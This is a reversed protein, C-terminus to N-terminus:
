KKSLQYGAPIDFSANDVTATSFDDYVVRMRTAMKRALEVMRGNGEYRTQVDLGCLVGKSALQRITEGIARAQDPPIQATSPLGLLYNADDAAKRLAAMERQEPTNAALWVTGTMRFTAPDTGLLTAMDSQLTFEDCKWHRIGHQKGTKALSLQVDNQQVNLKPADAKALSHLEATRFAHDLIIVERSKLDFLYSYARGREILDRRLRDKKMSLKEQGISPMGLSAVSSRGTLVLDASAPLALCCLSLALLIRYRLLSTKM